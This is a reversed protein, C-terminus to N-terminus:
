YHSKQLTIFSCIPQSISVELDDDLDTIHTMLIRLHTSAQAGVLNKAKEPDSGIAKNVEKDSDLPLLREPMRQSIVSVKGEFVKLKSFVIKCLPLLQEGVIEKKKKEVIIQCVDNQMRIAIGTVACSFTVFVM